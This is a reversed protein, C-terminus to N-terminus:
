YYGTLDPGYQNERRSGRMFIMFILFIFLIFTFIFNIYVFTENKLPDDSFSGLAALCYLILISIYLAGFLKGSFGLDHLRKYGIALNPWFFLGNMIVNFSLTKLTIGGLYEELTLGFFPSLFYSLGGGFFMLFLSSLIYLKRPIRGNFEWFLHSMTM